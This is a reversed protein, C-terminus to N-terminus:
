GQGKPLLRSIVFLLAVVVGALVGWFIWGAKGGPTGGDSWRSQKLAAAPGLTAKHKEAALLQRAVLDIDYRPRSAQSNGYYLFPAGGPYTKFIMRTVPYRFSFDKLGLPQNDGNEIELLLTDGAPPSLSLVLKEKRQELTRTWTTGARTVTCANGREDTVEEVLSVQRQFFPADTDCILQTVPLTRFPLRLRWRSATPRKPDDAREITPTLIRTIPTREILYPIQQGGGVEVSGGFFGPRRLTELHVLRLDEFGPAAHSLIELDLELELVGAQVSEVQRRFKWKAVDIFSGRFMGIEKIESFPEIARYAPNAVLASVNPSQLLRPSVNAPLAALDYRPASCKPNGSLFHVKGAEAALWAVYVPRRTARVEVGNLPPSDGNQITLILERSPLATEAACLLNSTAPQGELAVRYITGRALVTERVEGEVYDRYALTVERTFLPDAAEIQLSALTVHAGAALLTLRTQGASEDREVIKIDLPETPTPTAEAAHVTAGTLPIAEARKDDVTVRWRSWAVPPFEVFLRSAADRRFLAQSRAVTQWTQGDNSGELTVAKIFDRVPTELSIRDIPQHLDTDFIAVTIRGSLTVRFNRAPRIARPAPAPREIRFPTERGNGDYLRLDSLDPRAADLTEIPLSLKILGTENVQVTQVHQWDPPLPAATANIVLLTTLPLLSARCFDSGRFLRNSRFAKSLLSSWRLWSLCSIAQSTSLNRWRKAHTHKLVAKRNPLSAVAPTQVRWPFAAIFRACELRQRATQLPEEIAFLKARGYATAARTRSEPHRESKM